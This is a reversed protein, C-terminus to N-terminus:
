SIKTANTFKAEFNKEFSAQVDEWILTKEEENVYANQKKFNNKEM